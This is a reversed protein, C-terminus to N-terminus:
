GYDQTDLLLLWGVWVPTLREVESPILGMGGLSVGLTEGAPAAMYSLASEGGGGGKGELNIVLSM